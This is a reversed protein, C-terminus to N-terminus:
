TWHGQVDPRTTPQLQGAKLNAVAERVTGSVGTYVPIGAAQLASFARPGVHGTLVAQAGLQTVTQAAQVGAGQMASANASNDHVQVEETDTDVVLFYPARAFRPDVPSDLTTGSSTVLVKM